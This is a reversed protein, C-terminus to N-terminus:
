ERTSANKKHYEIVCIAECLYYFSVPFVPVVDTHSNLLISPLSEDTGKLALVVVPKKPHVKLFACFITM